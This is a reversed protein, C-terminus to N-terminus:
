GKTCHLYVKRVQNEHRLTQTGVLFSIHEADCVQATLARAKWTQMYILQGWMLCCLVPNSKFCRVCVPRSTWEGNCLYAKSYKHVSVYMCVQFELGYIAAGGEMKFQFRNFQTYM